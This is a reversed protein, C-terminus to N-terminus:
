YAPCVRVRYADGWENEQWEFHCRPRPAERYYTREYVVQRPPPPPPPADYIREEYVPGRPQSAIAGGILGGVTGAAVGAWFHDRAEAAPATAILASTLSLAVLGATFSKKLVSM